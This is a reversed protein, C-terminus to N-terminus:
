RPDGEGSARAGALAARVEAHRERTLRYQAYCWCAVIGFAAILPGYVVGLMVITEPPVDAASQIHAGRPWAILDLAFGAIINGVGSTAKAAFSSAAFFIGEQRQGSELEHEDVIDAVMSGFAVDGQVASAGQIMKIGVLLPLLLPDGNEPFQGLLRLLVPLLQWFAFGVAGFILGARKGYRSLARPSVLVGLLVGVPYGLFVTFIADADFEWFYTFIYLDLASNVGWMVYMTLNGAFLWRFSRSHLSRVMDRLMRAIVAVGGLSQGAPPRPLGPIVERTGWASWFITAAMLTALVFAFPPYASADLQGNEFEPTAVFFFGFGVVFVFLVAVYNFFQRYGVLTSRVDYDSSMEAGLAIHPVHYFSMATRTLNAFVTLWVFLGMESTVLPNFLFYFSAALPLISAYMFPHRRGLRSRWHDSLSGALPDTFADVVFALGVATGALSGSLGLVQNYYFMLFVSLGTTLLGVAAQGIGFATKLRFHVNETTM